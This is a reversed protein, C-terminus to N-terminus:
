EPEPFAKEKIENMCFASFVRTEQLGSKYKFVRSNWNATGDSKLHDTPAYVIEKHGAVNWSANSFHCCVTLKGTDPVEVDDGFLLTVFEILTMKNLHESEFNKTGDGPVLNMYYEFEPVSKAPSGTALLAITLTAADKPTMHPAGRGRPGQTLYGAERLLRAVLRVTKEEIGYAVAVTSIFPGSKM